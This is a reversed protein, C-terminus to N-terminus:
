ALHKDKIRNVVSQIANAVKVKTDSPIPTILAKIVTTPREIRINAM